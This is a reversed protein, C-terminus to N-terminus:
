AMGQTARDLHAISELRRGPRGRDSAHRLEDSRAGRGPDGARPGEEPLRHLAALVRRGAKWLKAREEGSATRARAKCRRPPSRSRSRPTPWSTRTGAPISPRAARPPSSSTATAAVQRLVAPVPIERGVQPGHDDAAAVARSLEPRDPQKITYMHGEKGGSSLYLNTHDVMWKPMNPALKAETMVSRRVRAAADVALNGDALARRAQRLCRHLARRLRQAHREVDVKIQAIGTLVVTDGLDQAKVDSPEVSTYVTSGSVM